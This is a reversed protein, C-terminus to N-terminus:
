KNVPIQERPEVIRILRRRYQGSHMIHVQFQIELAM